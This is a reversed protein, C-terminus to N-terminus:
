GMYREIQPDFGESKLASAVKSSKKNDAHKRM